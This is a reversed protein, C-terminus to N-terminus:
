LPRETICSSFLRRAKDLEEESLDAESRAYRCINKIDDIAYRGIGPANLRLYNEPPMLYRVNGETIATQSALIIEVLPINRKANTFLEPVDIWPAVWQHVGAEAVDEPEFSLHDVSGTGVSLLVIRHFDRGPPSTGRSRSPREFRTADVLALMAPNDVCLSGDVLMASHQLDDVAPFFVPAATSAMVVDAVRENERQRYEERYDSKYLRPTGTSLEVCPICLDTTVEAFTTDGMQEKIIQRLLDSHYIPSKLGMTKKAFIQPLADQFVSTLRAATLGM